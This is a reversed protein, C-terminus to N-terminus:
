LFSRVLIQVGILILILGGLMGSRSKMRRGARHGLHIGALCIFLTVLGIILSCGLAEAARYETIAFGVSLADLSTAIGQLLLEALSEGAAPVGERGSTEGQQCAEASVARGAPAAKEASAARGAPAAEEVLAARGAPAAEEASVARGVPATEEAAEKEAEERSELIMKGGIYSLVGMAIWPILPEMVSFVQLAKHVLFWGLLPMVIQFLAFTGAIVGRRLPPMEPSRIGHAVSVSFADMALGAGLLVSQLLFSTM